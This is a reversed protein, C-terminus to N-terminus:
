YHNVVNTRKKYPLTEKSLVNSCILYIYIIGMFNVFKTFPFIAMTFLVGSFFLIKISRWFVTNGYVSEKFDVFGCLLSYVFMIIFVALIGGDNYAYGFCTMFYNMEESPAVDVTYAQAELLFKNAEDLIEPHKLGLLDLVGFVSKGAGLFCTFGYTNDTFHTSNIAQSLYQLGACYYIYFTNFIGSGRQLTSMVVFSVFVVVVKKIIRSKKVSIKRRTVYYMYFMSFFMDLFIGRGGDSFFHVLCLVLVIILYKKSVGKNFVNVIMVFLSARLFPKAFYYYIIDLSGSFQLSDDVQMMGRANSMGQTVILPLLLLIKSFVIAISVGLIVYFLIKYTRNEAYLYRAKPTSKSYGQTDFIITSVINGLLFGFSGIIVLIYVEDSIDFLGYLKFIGWLVILSWFVFFTTQLHIGKGYTKKNMLWSLCSSFLLVILCAISM